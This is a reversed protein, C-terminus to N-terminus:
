GETELHAGYLCVRMCAGRRLMVRVYVNRTQYILLAASAKQFLDKVIHALGETSTVVAEAPFAPRKLGVGKCISKPGFDLKFYTVKIASVTEEEGLLSTYSFDFM